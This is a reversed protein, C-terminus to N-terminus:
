AAARAQSWPTLRREARLLAVDALTALMVSLVVGVIVETTNRRSFGLIFFQGYGGQGIFATITVLGITTVTAIRVGAIIVPLALPLEVRRLQEGRTYGMAEAAERVDQPVNDLGAVTNRFLILLTYVVLGILSTATGLGFPSYALLMIFLAASPITFLVGTINLLPTYFRRKRVALLALPVAIALGIIVALVTLRVHQVTLQQIRDINREGFWSPDFLARQAQALVPAIM